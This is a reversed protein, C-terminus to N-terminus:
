FQFFQFSAGQKNRVELEQREYTVDLAHGSILTAVGVSGLAKSQQALSCALPAGQIWRLRLTWGRLPACTSDVRLPLAVQERLSDGSGESLFRFKVRKEIANGQDSGGGFM